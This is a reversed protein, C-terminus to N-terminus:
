GWRFRRKLFNLQAHSIRGYHQLQGVVIGASVGVTRAFRMIERSTAPVRMLEQHFSPPVLTRSAFENAEREEDSVGEISGELFIRKQGYLLIHAAEHFFTFWFHDDSLHRFSLLLMARGNSLFRTAGSARCGSPARVVVVLVGCEGCISQLEPLFRQPDKQRTLPRIEQLAKSFEPANWAASKIKRSEIEGQRLWAVVAGPKSDFSPSSRFSTVQIIDAYKSQWAAVDPVNFFALCSNVEDQPKPVPCLWGFKIMDSLPLGALWTQADGLNNRRYQYDRSIWFEVSGGLVEKLQRAIKLTITARGELLDATQAVPFHMRASFDALSIQREDLIDTITEGPASVWTPAFEEEKAM